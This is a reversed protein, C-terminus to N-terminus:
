YSIDKGSWVEKAKHQLQVSSINLERLLGVLKDIESKGPLKKIELEVIEGERLDVEELLKLTKGKYVARTRM